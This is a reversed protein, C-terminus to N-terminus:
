SAVYHGGVRPSRDILQCARTAGEAQTRIAAMGRRGAELCLDLRPLQGFARSRLGGSGKSNFLADGGLGLSHTGSM